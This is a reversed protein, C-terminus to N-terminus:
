FEGNYVMKLWEKLGYDYLGIRVLGAAAEFVEEYQEPNQKQYYNFIDEITTDFQNKLIYIYKRVQNFNEKQYNSTFNRSYELYFYALVITARLTNKILEKNKKNKQSDNEYLQIQVGVTSYIWDKFFTDIFTRHQGDATDYQKSSLSGETEYWKYVFTTATYTIIDDRTLYYMIQNSLCIDEHSLLDKPFHLNYKNWFDHNIFKGHTWGGMDTFDIQKGSLLKKVFKGTMITDCKNSLILSKIEKFCDPFFQDDHDSFILWKGTANDVGRQRTNGPCCNYDTTVKKIYLQEKFPAIQDDYPETSCDDSIIVQIDGYFMNQAVISSLLRGITAKSNYCSIIISFFPQLM